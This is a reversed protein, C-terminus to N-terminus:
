KGTIDYLVGEVAPLDRLIRMVTREILDYPLRYAYSTVGDSSVQAHLIAAYKGQPTPSLTVFYRFLKKDLGAEEIEAVFAADAERLVILAEETVPGSVRLALGGMPFPQGTLLTAPLGMLEGLERIEERFLPRLPTFESAHEGGAGLLVTDGQQALADRVAASVMAQKEEADAVDRLAARVQAGIDVVTLRAGIEEEFVRRLRAIEGQRMLGTDCTVCAVGEGLARLALAATVLAPAGSSVGVVVRGQWATERLRRAADEMFASMTWEGQAGCVGSVFNKILRLGDPDNSEVSFQLGYARKEEDAFGAVLGEEAWAIARAGTPLTWEEAREFYRESESMDAFLPCDEFRVPSTRKELRTTGTQGNLATLLRRASRGLALVPCGRALAERLAPVDGGARLGNGALVVGAASEGLTVGVNETVALTKLARIRRTIQRAEDGGTDIVAIYRNDM